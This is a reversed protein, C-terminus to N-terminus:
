VRTLTSLGDWHEADRVALSGRSLSTAAELLLAPLRPPALIPTGDNRSRLLKQRRSLDKVSIGVM